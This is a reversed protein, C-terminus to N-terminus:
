RIVCNFKYVDPNMLENQRRLNNFIQFVGGKTLNSQILNNANPTLLSNWVKPNCINKLSKLFYKKDAFSCIKVSNHGPISKSLHLLNSWFVHVRIYDDQLKLNHLIEHTEM